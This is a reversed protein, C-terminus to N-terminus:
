QRKTSNNRTRQSTCIEQKFVVQTLTFDQRLIHCSFGCNIYQCNRYGTKRRQKIRTGKDMLAMWSVDDRPKNESSVAGPVCCLVCLIPKIVATEKMPLSSLQIYQLRCAYIAGPGKEFCCVVALEAEGVGRDMAVIMYLGLDGV